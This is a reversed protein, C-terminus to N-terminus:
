GSGRTSDILHARRQDQVCKVLVGGMVGLFHAGQAGFQDQALDWPLRDLPPPPAPPDPRTQGTHRALSNAQSNALVKEQGKLYAALIAASERSSTYHERLFSELRFFWRTKSLSPPSKHCTACASAYLQAGTKGQDLNGQAAAASAFALALFGFGLRTGRGLM